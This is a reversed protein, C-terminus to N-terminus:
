SKTKPRKKKIWRIGAIGVSDTLFVKKINKENIGGLAIFLKNENLSLFNFKIANLIKKSKTTQFLPSLFILQCNQKKKTIIERKNHASGIIIFNKCVNFNFFNLNKNFSPIYVGDIKLKIALKIDNAIFFKRKDKKCFNKLASLISKNPEKKYNRYIIDINKNLSSLDKINFEDVFLFIKPLKNQM